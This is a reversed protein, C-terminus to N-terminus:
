ENMIASLEMEFLDEPSSYGLSKRPLTNLYASFRDLDDQTLFSLDKGKPIFRRLMGNFHENQGREWASYPHTYYVDIGLSEFADAAAFEPGNDFTISRFVKNFNEGLREKLKLLSQYTAEATKAETKLIFNKHVKREILTIVSSKGDKGVVSDGEWHAFVERTNIVEPRQDISTGLKKKTREPM